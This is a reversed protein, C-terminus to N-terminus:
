LKCSECGEEKQQANGKSGDEFNQYYATKAGSTGQRIFWKICDEMPIKKNEYNTFNTYDDASISQDTYPQVAGYYPVTDVDWAPTKDETFYQSIFQVKGKRAKKYVVRHRTPYLGNTSNSFPSSSECPMHAVLVSHMRPKSRLAEWDLLPERESKMTDIPLWDLDIGEACIGTEESLKQSAKLVAYYHLEATSEVLELSEPSGDYDLGAKYIKAAMGTIGVGISRRRLLSERMSETLMPAMEMMRTVTRVAREAVAFYRGESIASVNLALISCFATEGKSTESYLDRMDVYGKTPLAIEMCLNSQHITDIFPTHQNVTTLNICYIRGTEWRADVFTKLIDRAKVKTHPTKNRLAAEVHKMYDLAHFNEHVEPAWYKSFLYWDENHIVARLFDDNYAFSYDLKDIRQSLDIKQTKWRLMSLIDPDIAKYTMTASGGRTVQTFKKVGAEVAKYLPHKGLHEVAGDKVPDGKSRTDITIGIGAKKATMSSAIHEAVEISAVTDDAEMLCCSISDFSGNRVGNLAPTPLNLRGEVIDLAVEFALETVGHYAIAIALAAQAPTEIANGSVKIAYKDSGQKITWYELDIAELEIIWDNAKELNSHLLWDGKWHGEEEMIELFELFTINQPKRIGLIREQNKYVTALELKAAVRSYNMDEKDLCVNIMTQHIEETSVKEPLRALTEQQIVRQMEMQNELGEVSWIVWDCVKKANFPVITGNHKVVRM